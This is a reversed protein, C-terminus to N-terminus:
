TKGESMIRNRELSKGGSQANRQQDRLTQNSRERMESKRWENTDEGDDRVTNYINDIM